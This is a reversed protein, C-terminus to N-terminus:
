HRKAPEGCIPSRIRTTSNPLFLSNKHKEVLFEDANQTIRLSIQNLSSLWLEKAKNQNKVKFIQNIGKFIILWNLESILYANAFIGNM